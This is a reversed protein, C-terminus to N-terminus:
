NLYMTSNITTGIGDFIRYYLERARPEVSLNFAKSIIAALDDLQALTDLKSLDYTLLLDIIYQNNEFRIADNVMSVIGVRLPETIM